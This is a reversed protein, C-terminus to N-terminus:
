ISERLFPMSMCRPGGRGRSIESSKIKICTVGSDELLRNTVTNRDYVVVKGPAVSLTNSGDNWQERQAAISDNGGCYILQVDDIGLCEALLRALKMNKEEVHLQGGKSTLIFCRMSHMIEPHVTFKDYDIQTFVTDLHMFARTKPIEIAIVYEVSSTEDAFLNIALQEIAEPSTRESIGVLITKENLNLIDGGEISYTNTHLYYKPVDKYDKHYNFIYRGYISERKRTVSYMKNLSVGTGISSFTDRTFYLNPIPDLVFNSNYSLLGALTSKQKCHLAKMNIGTMTLQVLEKVDQVANLYEFLEEKYALAVEGSEAIFEKIFQTRLDTNNQLVEAVLDELYLVESGNERLVQAFYDHEQQAIELYPIDDFLLRSLSDPVLHLLEKGPRHLLVKRLQGIESKVFLPM